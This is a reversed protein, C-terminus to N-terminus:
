WTGGEYGEEGGTKRPMMPGGEYGEEGGIM